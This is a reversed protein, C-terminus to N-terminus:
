QDHEIRDKLPKRGRLALNIQVPQQLFIPSGRLDHSIEVTSALCFSAYGLSISVPNQKQRTSLKLVVWKSHKLKHKMKNVLYYWITTTPILIPKSFQRLSAFPPEDPTQLISNDTLDSEETESEEQPVKSSNPFTRKYLSRTVTLCGVTGEGLVNNIKVHIAVAGLRKNTFYRTIWEIDM